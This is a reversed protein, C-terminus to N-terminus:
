GGSAENGEADDAACQDELSAFAAVLTQGEPSAEDMTEDIDFALQADESLGDVFADLKQLFADEAATDGEAIEDEGDTVECYADVKQEDNILANIANVARDIEQATPPTVPEDDAQNDQSFVPTALLALTSAIILTKKM